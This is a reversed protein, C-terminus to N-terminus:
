THAPEHMHADLKNELSQIDDKLAMATIKIENKLSGHVMDIKKDLSGIKSGLRQGVGVIKQGLSSLGEFALKFNSRMEELLVGFKDEQKIM